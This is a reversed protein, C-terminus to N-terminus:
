TLQLLTCQLDTHSRTLTQSITFSISAHKQIHTRSSLTWQGSLSLQVYAYERPLTEPFGGCLLEKQIICTSTKYYSHIAYVLM